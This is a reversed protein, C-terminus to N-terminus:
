LDAVEKIDMSRMKAGRFPLLEVLEVGALYRLAERVPVIKVTLKEALHTANICEGQNITGNLLGEPLYGM